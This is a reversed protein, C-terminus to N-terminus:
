LLGAFSVWVKNLATQLKNSSLLNVHMYLTLLGKWINKYTFNWGVSMECQHCQSRVGASMLSSIDQAQLMQIPAWRNCCDVNIEMSVSTMVQNKKHPIKVGQVTSVGFAVNYYRKSETCSIPCVKPRIFLHFNWYKGLINHTSAKLSIKLNPLEIIEVSVRITNTTHPRRLVVSHKHTCDAM